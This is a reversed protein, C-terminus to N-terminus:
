TQFVFLYSHLIHKTCLAFNTTNPQMSTIIKAGLTLVKILARQSSKARIHLLIIYSRAIKKLFIALTPVLPRQGARYESM